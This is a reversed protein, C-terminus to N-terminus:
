PKIAMAIAKGNKTVEFPLDSFNKSVNRSFEKISVQRITRVKEPVIKITRVKKSITRVKEKLIPMVEDTNVNWKHPERPSHNSLCVKCWPAGTNSNKAKGM